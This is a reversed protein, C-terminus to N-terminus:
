SRSHSSASRSSLTAPSRRRSGTTAGSSSGVAPSPRAKAPAAAAPTATNREWKARSAPSTRSRAHALEVERDAARADEVSRPRRGEFAVDGHAARADLGDARERAAARAPLDVGAAEDERRAEDVDVGVVVAREEGM